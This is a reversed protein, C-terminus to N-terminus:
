TLDDAHGHPDHLLEWLETERLVKLIIVINKEFLEKALPHCNEPPLIQYSRLREWADVLRSREERLSTFFGVLDDTQKKLPLTVLEDFVQTHCRRLGEDVAESTYRSELGHHHYRGTNYDRLSSLYILRSFHWEMRALTRSQFDTVVQEAESGQGTEERDSNKM